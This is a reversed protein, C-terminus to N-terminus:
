MAGPQKVRLIRVTDGIHRDGPLFLRITPFAALIAAYNSRERAYKGPNQNFRGHGAAICYDYGAKFMSDPTVYALGCIGIYRVRFDGRDCMPTYDERAILSGAPLNAGIWADAVKRIDPKMLRQLSIGDKIVPLAVLAALAAYRATRMGIRDLLLAAGASFPIALTMLNHTFAIHYNCLLIFWLLPAACVVAMSWPKRAFAAIVGSIGALFLLPTMGDMLLYRLFFAFLNGSEAGPHGGAYTGSQMLLARVFEKASLISFPTTIAFAAASIAAILAWRRVVIRGRMWRNGDRLAAILPAVPVFWMYKSGIALGACVAAAVLPRIRGPADMARLSYYMCWCVFTMALVDPDIRTSHAYHIPALSFLLAAMTGARDSRLAGGICFVGWACVCLLLVNVIRSVAFFLWFPTHEGAAWHAAHLLHYAANVGAVIGANLYYYLSPYLFYHPNPDGKVIGVAIFIADAEGADPYSPLSHLIGPLRLALALLFIAGLRMYAPSPTMRPIKM